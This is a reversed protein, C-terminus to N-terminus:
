TPSEAAHRFPIPLNIFRMDSKKFRSVAISNVRAVLPVGDVNIHKKVSKQHKISSNRCVSYAHSTEFVIPVYIYMCCFVCQLRQKDNRLQSVM